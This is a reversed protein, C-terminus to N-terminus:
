VTLNACSFVVFELKLQGKESPLIACVAPLAKEAGVAQADGAQLKGGPFGGPLLCGKVSRSLCAVEEHSLPGVQVATSTSYVCACTHASKEKM